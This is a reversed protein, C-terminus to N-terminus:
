AIGAFIPSNYLHSGCTFLPSLICVGLVLSQFCAATRQCFSIQTAKPIGILELFFTSATIRWVRRSALAPLIKSARRRKELSEVIYNGFIPSANPVKTRYVSFIFMSCKFRCTSAPPPSHTPTCSDIGGAVFRTRNLEGVVPEVNDKGSVSSNVAAFTCSLIARDSAANPRLAFM